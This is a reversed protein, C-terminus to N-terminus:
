SDREVQSRVNEIERDKALIEEHLTSIRDAQFLNVESLKELSGETNYKESTV